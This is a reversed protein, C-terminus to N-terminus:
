RGVRAAPFGVRSRRPEARGVHGQLGCSARTWSGAGPAKALPMAHRRIVALDDRLLALGGDGREGSSGGSGANFISMAPGILGSFQPVVLLELIL